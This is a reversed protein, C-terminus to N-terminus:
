VGGEGEGGEAGEGEQRWCGVVRGVLPRGVGLGMTPSEPEAGSVVHVYDRARLVLGKYALSEVVHPGPARLPPALVLPQMLPLGPADPTTLAHAIRQLAVVRTWGEGALSPIGGVLSLYHRRGSEFLRALDCDFPRSSPYYTKSRSRSELLRWSIALQMSTLITRSFDLTFCVKDEPVGDLATSLKVNDEDRYAKIAQVIELHREHKVDAMWGGEPGMLPAYRPLGRELQRVIDLDQVGLPNEHPDDLDDDDSSFESESDSHEAPAPPEVPAVPPPMTSTSATPAPPAPAIAKAAAAPLAPKAKPPAPKQVKPAMPPPSDRPTPLPRSKWESELINKLTQADKAIQSDPENYFLANLFVLSLDTYADLADKYRNKELMTQINNLCRPEPIVEYYEPWDDRDVLELFMGALERKRPPRGTASTLAHLVEEISKKQAATVGM